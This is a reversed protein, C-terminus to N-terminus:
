AALNALSIARFKGDTRSRKHLAVSGRTKDESKGFLYWQAIETYEYMAQVKMKSAYHNCQYQLSQFCLTM